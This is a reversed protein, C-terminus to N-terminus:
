SCHHMRPLKYIECKSCFNFEIPVPNKTRLQEMRKDPMFYNKIITADSDHKFSEIVHNEGRETQEKRREVREKLRKFIENSLARQEDSLQGPNSLVTSLYATILYLSLALFVDNCCTAPYFGGFHYSVMVIYSGICFLFEIGFNRPRRLGPIHFDEEKLKDKCSHPKQESSAKLQEPTFEM